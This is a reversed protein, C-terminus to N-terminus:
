LNKILNVITRNYISTWDSNRVENVNKSTYVVEVSFHQLLRIKDDNPQGYFYIKNKILNPYKAMLRARQDLVWWVDQESEDLGFGIIHVNTTFFLPIWFRKDTNNLNPLRQEIPEVIDLKPRNNKAQSHYEGKIYQYIKALSGCYHNFGLMISKPYKEDGHIHWIRKVDDDKVYTNQRRLSYIEEDHCSLSTDPKFQNYLLVKEFVHDYNTTIYNQVNHKVFKNYQELVTAFIADETQSCASAIENKQMEVIDSLLLSGGANTFSDLRSCEYRLTNLTNPLVSLGSIKRLLDEWSQSNGGLRNIGNGLFITNDM